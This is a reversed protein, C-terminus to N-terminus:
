PQSRLQIVSGDLDSRVAVPHRSSVRPHSVPVLPGALSLGQGVCGAAMPYYRAFFIRRPQRKTRRLEFPNERGVKSPELARVTEGMTAYLTLGHRILSGRM